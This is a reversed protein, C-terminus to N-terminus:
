STPDSSGPDRREVAPAPGPGRDSSGGASPGSASAPGPDRDSPRGTPPESMPSPDPEGGDGPAAWGGPAPVAPWPDDEDWWPLDDPDGEPRWSRAEREERRAPAMELPPRRALLVVLAVGALTLLYSVWEIPARGYRLEVHTGEPVVVMLNPAVRYPGRGGEVRWNPFYSAKVLVPTGPESVDFSIRDDATEIGSVTVPVVARRPAAAFADVDVRAWESPGSAAIAVDWLSADQFWQVAPGACPRDTPDGVWGHHDNELGDLVAPENALSTVLESDAVEFVTWPGSSAVETLDPHGRAATLAQASTAMYYRVGLLQLHEVGRDVDFGRYPMCRQASSPSASLESQVLFHFPTTESSEFYLGEMSGICGDTWHPLLMLAMPTGYRNLESDYEWFARGCGRDEGLEAMTTVVARYEPYAPKGVYGDYNWRAWSPVFSNSTTEFGMWRYSGDLQREGLPLRGLPMGVVVLTFALAVLTVAVPTALGPREVEGTLAGGLVRAVEAVAVAALLYLCLYYFPLLRANWLRGDPVLVFALATGAAVVALFRGLRIRFALSLVLGVVALAFVWRMDDAFPGVPVGEPVPGNRPLLYRWFTEGEFDLLTRSIAGGDNVPLRYPIKEWGMDNVYARQWVFPLVWWSALLGGVPLVAAAWAWAARRWRSAVAVVTVGLVWIAPIIHCLGTLALLVAALARHRGTRLGRILVGLYLVALSLSLSFAFEGALTSAANGGYITFNRNFLFPVGAVALLAPGPFALGALRGLAYLALPLSLLGAVTVLKFATGYHLDPGVVALVVAAAALAKRRTGPGARWATVALAAAGLVPLVWLPGGFLGVDLAVILLAPVVMYFQYAPFGAYWD